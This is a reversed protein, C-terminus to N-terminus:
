AIKSKQPQGGAGEILPSETETEQPKDASSDDSVARPSRPSGKILHRGRRTFLFPYDNDFSLDVPEDAEADRSPKRRLSIERAGSGRLLYWSAGAAAVVALALLSIIRVM